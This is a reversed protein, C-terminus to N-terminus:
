KKAALYATEAAKWGEAIPCGIVDITGGGLDRCKQQYECRSCPEREPVHLKTSTRWEVAGADGRLAYVAVAGYVVCQAEKLM